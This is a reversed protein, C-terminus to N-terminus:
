SLAVPDEVKRSVIEIGGTLRGCALKAVRELFSAWMHLQVEKAMRLHHYLVNSLWDGSRAWSEIEVCLKDEAQAARFEIQGAELHGSLTALRFSDAATAVVRVPGDWPGPMRVVLEDGVALRDEAGKVRLFRALETPTACNPDAQLRDMVERPSLVADRIHARYLRHFLPGVGDRIVQVDGDAFGLPLPPPYDENSGADESRHMPTTRWMYHWSTLAIGFPWAAATWLRRELSLRSAVLRPRVRPPTQSFTVVVPVFSAHDDVREIARTESARLQVCEREARHPKADPEPDARLGDVLIFAAVGLPAREEHPQPRRREPLDSIRQPGNLLRAAAKEGTAARLPRACVTAAVNFAHLTMGSQDRERVFVMPRQQLRTLQAARRVVRIGLGGDGREPSEERGLGNRMKALLLFREEREHDVAVVRMLHDDLRQDVMLPQACERHLEFIRRGHARTHAFDSVQEFRVHPVFLSAKKRQDFPECGASKRRARICRRTAPRNPAICRLIEIRRQEDPVGAAAGPLVDVVLAVDENEDDRSRRRDVDFACGPEQSRAVRQDDALAAATANRGARGADAVQRDVQTPRRQLNAGDM